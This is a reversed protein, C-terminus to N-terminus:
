SNDNAKYVIAKQPDLYVQEEDQLIEFANKARIIIPIKKQAAFNLLINESYTDIKSNQLIIGKVNKLLLLNSDLCKRLVVIKDKIDKENISDLSIIKHIKANILSGMGKYARVLINGISEVVMLNTLNSKEFPFSSILVILDGFSILNNNIAYHSMIKFAERENNWNEFFIPIIGWYFALQNYRKISNTLVIVPIKPRFRTILRATFGTKSIAFIASASCSYATKVTAISVATAIDEYETHSLKYFFNKYDFDIETQHIIKKMQTVTEIPYKGIATEGSLMVCAASDYIANAVDSVEARTPRPNNIMSELMQTAIVVPKCAEYCKLIMVKQLKPVLSLDVEVGLDGRAVMIGDAADAIEEFNDVGESSEIKAIVLVDNVKEEKLIDRIQKIHDASRIFSAAIIDIDNKCGFKLDLIDQDTVAPLPLKANPLNIGKKNKLVGPNEIKVTAYDKTVEVVSSTIYGDDFLVKQNPKLIDIVDCPFVPIEDDKKAEKRVLKVIQDTKLDIENNKLIGVRIEPGKTDLLISLPRKLIKRAEKINNITILHEEHTGHSFNIRAVDMGAKALKLIMEVSSTNPGLTCIIKTRTHM